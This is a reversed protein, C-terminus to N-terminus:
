QMKNLEEITPMQMLFNPSSGGMIIKPVQAGGAKWADIYNNQVMLPTIQERKLQLAKAESEAKTLLQYAEAEYQIKAADSLGKQEAVRRDAEFKAIDVEKEKALALKENTKQAEIAAIFAPNFDIDSIIINDLVFYQKPFNQEIKSIAQDKVLQREQWIETSTFNATTSKFGERVIGELNLIKVMDADMGVKKYAEIVSDPMLHYNILIRAKVTQGDHDIATQEANMMEVTMTRMRLDYQEVHTFLGTWRMGPQMVGQIEGFRNMVGLHSADVTDFGQFLILLGGLLGGVILIIFVFAAAEQGKKGRMM